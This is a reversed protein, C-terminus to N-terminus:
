CDNREGGTPPKPKASEAKFTDSSQDIARPDWSSLIMASARAREMRDREELLQFQLELAQRELLAQERM